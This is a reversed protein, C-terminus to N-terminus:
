AALAEIEILDLFGDDGACASRMEQLLARAQALNLAQTINFMLSALEVALHGDSNAVAFGAFPVEPRSPTTGIFTFTNEASYPAPTDQLFNIFESEVVDPDGQAIAELVEVSQAVEEADSVATVRFGWGALTQILHERSLARAIGTKAQGGGQGTEDEIVGAFTFVQPDAIAGASLM